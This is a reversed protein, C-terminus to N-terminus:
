LRNSGNIAWTVHLVVTGVILCSVLFVPRVRRPLALALGTTALIWLVDLAYLRLEADDLRLQCEAIQSMYEGDHSLASGCSVTGTGERLTGLSTTARWFIAASLLVVCLGLGVRAVVVASAGSSTGPLEGELTM